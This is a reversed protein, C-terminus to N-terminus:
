GLYGAVWHSLFPHLSEAHMVAVCAALLCVRGFYAITDDHLLFLMDAYAITDYASWWHYHSCVATISCMAAAESGQMFALLAPINHAVNFVLPWLIIRLVKSSALWQWHRWAHQMTYGQHARHLM